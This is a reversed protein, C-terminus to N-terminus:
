GQMDNLVTQHIYTGYLMSEVQHYSTIYPIFKDAAYAEFTHGAIPRVMNVVAAGDLVIANFDPVEEPIAPKPLCDVLDSKTCSRLEGM